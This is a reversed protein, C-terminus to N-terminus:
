CPLVCEALEMSAWKFREPVVGGSNLLKDSENIIIFVLGCSDLALGAFDDDVEGEEIAKDSKLHRRRNYFDAM